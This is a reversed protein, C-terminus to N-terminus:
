PSAPEAPSGTRLYTALWSDIRGWADQMLVPDLMIHGQAWYRIFESRKELRSLATYMQEGEEIPVYDQDGQIILLPTTIRDAFFIPNNRVYEEPYRWPPGDLGNQMSEYATMIWWSPHSDTYRDGTTFMGYAGDSDLPGSISIAAKFRNTQTVLAYVAYGGFSDGILAVRDPDTIGLAVMKDVAPMVGNLLRAYPEPNKEEHGVTEPLPMSPRVVVYGQAALMQPNDFSVNGISNPKSQWEISLDPTPYTNGPYVWVVTPYRHGLRYDPPVTIQAGLKTGDLSVYAMVAQNGLEIDSLFSNENSFLTKSKRTDSISIMWMSFVGFQGSERILCGRGRTSYALVDGDSGPTRVKILHGSGPDYEYWAAGSDGASAKV